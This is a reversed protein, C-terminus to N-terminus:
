ELLSGFSKEMNVQMECLNMCNKESEDENTPRMHPISDSKKQNRMM